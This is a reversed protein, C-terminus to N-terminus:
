AKGDEEGDDVEVWDEAEVDDDDEDDEGDEDQGLERLITEVEDVEEVLEGATLQFLELDLRSLEIVNICTYVLGDTTEEICWYAHMNEANRQLLTSSLGHPLADSDEFVLMSQVSLELVEEMLAVHLYQERDPGTEFVLLAHEDDLEEARAQLSECYQLITEKFKGGAFLDIIPM